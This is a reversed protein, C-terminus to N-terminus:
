DLTSDSWQPDTPPHVLDRGKVPEPLVVTAGAVELRALCGGHTTDTKSMAWVEVSTTTYTVAFGRPNVCSGSGAAYVLRLKNGDLSVFRWPMSTLSRAEGVSISPKVEPAPLTTAWAPLDTAELSEASSPGTPKIVPTPGNSAVAAAAIVASMLLVAVVVAAVAARRSMRERANRREM